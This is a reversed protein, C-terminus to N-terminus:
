LLLWLSLCFHFCFYFPLGGRSRRVSVHIHEDM